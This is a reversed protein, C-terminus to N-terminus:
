FESIGLFLPNMKLNNYLDDNRRSFKDAMLSQIKREFLPYSKKLQEAKAAGKFALLIESYLECAREFEPGDYYSSTNFRSEHVIQFWPRNSLIRVELSIVDGSNLIIYDLPMYAFDAKKIM